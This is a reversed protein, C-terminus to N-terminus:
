LCLTKACTATRASGISPSQQLRSCSLPSCRQVALGNLHRQSKPPCSTHWWALPVATCMPTDPQWGVITAAANTLTPRRRRRWTIHMRNAGTCDTLCSCPHHHWGLITNVAPTQPRSTAALGLRHQWALPVMEGGHARLPPPTRDLRSLQAPSRYAPLAGRQMAAAILKARAQCLCATHSLCAAPVAYPLTDRRGRDAPPVLARLRTPTHSLGACPAAHWVGRFCVNPTQMPTILPASPHTPRLQAAVPRFADRAPLPRTWLFFANRKTTIRTANPPFICRRPSHQAYPGDHTRTLCAQARKMAM